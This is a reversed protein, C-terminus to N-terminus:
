TFPALCLLGCVTHNWKYLIDLVSMDIHLSFLNTTALLQPHFTLPFHFESSISVPNRKPPSSFTRFNVTTLSNCLERFVTFLVTYLKFLFINAVRNQISGAEWRRLLSEEDERPSLDQHASCIFHVMGATGKRIFILLYQDEEQLCEWTPTLSTIERRRERQKRWDQSSCETEGPTCHTFILIKKIM